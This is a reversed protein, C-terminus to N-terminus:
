SASWQCKENTKNNTQFLKYLGKPLWLLFHGTKYTTSAKLRKIESGSSFGKVFCDLLEVPDYKYLKLLDIAKKAYEIRYDSIEAIDRMELYRNRVSRFRRFFAQDYHQKPMEHKNIFELLFRFSDLMSTFYPLTKLSSLTSSTKRYYYHTNTAMSISKSFYTARLLFIVDEGGGDKIDPYRVINHDFISRHYVASWHHHTFLLFLPKNQELGKRIIKNLSLNLRKVGDDGITVTEAKVICSQNIKASNYLQEYYDLDIWDDSDIFGIYEGRAIEIGENRSLGPGLNKHNHLVVIRNDNLAYEDCINGSNDKSCDNILIIEIEKLTQNIICDLCQRIYNEVNYVPVIISVKPNVSIGRPIM